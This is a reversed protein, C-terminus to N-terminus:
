EDEDQLMIKIILDVYRAPLDIPLDGIEQTVPDMEHIEYVDKGDRQAEVLVLKELDLSDLFAEGDFASETSTSPYQDDKSSTEPIIENQLQVDVKTENLNEDVPIEESNEFQNLNDVYESPKEYEQNQVSQVAVLDHQVPITSIEPLETESPDDLVMEGNADLKLRTVLAPKYKRKRSKGKSKKDSTKEMLPVSAITPASDELPKVTSLELSKETPHEISEQITHELSEEIPHELVEAEVQVTTSFHQPVEVVINENIIQQVDPIVAAEIYVEEFTYADDCTFASQAETTQAEATAQVFDTVPVNTESADYEVRDVSGDYYIATSVTSSPM